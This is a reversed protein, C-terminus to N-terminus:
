GKTKVRVYVRFGKRKVGDKASSTPLKMSSLSAQKILKQRSLNDILKLIDQDSAAVGQITVRSGGDFDVSSFKVRKPVSSAIQALIRYSIDQNSKLSNSLKLTTTIVKLEKNISAKQKATSAHTAIVNDYDSLKQKYLYINLFSLFFLAIYIVIIAGAAGKYSFNFFAKM